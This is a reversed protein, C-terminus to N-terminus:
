RKGTLVAPTGRGLTEASKLATALPATPWVGFVLIMAVAVAVAARAAWSFRVQRHSELSRTPKMTMSMIVPLYYGASVLSGVVLVVPLIYQGESVAAAILYWKGIFGLTGPFGLLSLLCISLALAAGPRVSYLGELDDVLVTRSGVHEISALIGFSALTTVSYAFLYFCVAGAGLTTGAWVAVLVYGAHAISSYALMRKVSQQALAVTNGLIITALALAAVVPQWVATATPFAELLVRVLAAFAATKVGTAMFGAIPTPSGDYVDPAWMHFPVAAVKFGFGILLLGLGLGALLSL